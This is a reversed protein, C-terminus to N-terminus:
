ICVCVCVFQILFFYPRYFMTNLFFFHHVPNELWNFKCKLHKGENFGRETKQWVQLFSLFGPVTNEMGHLFSFNINHLSVFQKSSNEYKIIINNKINEKKKYFILICNHEPRKKSKCGM